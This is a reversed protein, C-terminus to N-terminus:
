PFCRLVEGLSADLELCAKRVLVDSPVQVKADFQSIGSIVPKGLKTCFRFEGSKGQKSQQTGM